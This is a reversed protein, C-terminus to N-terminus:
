EDNTWKGFKKEFTLLEFGSQRLLCVREYDPMFGAKVEWLAKHADDININFRECAKISEPPM